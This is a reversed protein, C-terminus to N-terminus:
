YQKLGDLRTIQPVGKSTLNERFQRPIRKEAMLMWNGRISGMWTGDPKLDAHVSSIKGMNLAIKQNYYPFWKLQMPVALQRLNVNNKHSRMLEEAIRDGRPALIHANILKWDDDVAIVLKSPTGSSGLTTGRIWESAMKTFLAGISLPGALKNRASTAKYFLAARFVSRAADTALGDHHRVLGNVYLEGGSTLKAKSTKLESIQKVVFDKVANSVTANAARKKDAAIKADVNFAAGLIGKLHGGVKPVAGLLPNILMSRMMKHVEAVAFYGASRQKAENKSPSALVKDFIDLAGEMHIFAAQSQALVHRAITAVPLKPDTLITVSGTGTTKPLTLGSGRVSVIGSSVGNGTFFHIDDRFSGSKTPSVAMEVEVTQRPDVTMGSSYEYVNLYGPVDGNATAISDLTVPNRGRNTIRVPKPKSTKGVDTVPFELAGPSLRLDAMRSSAEGFGTVPLIAAQTNADTYVYLLDSFEGAASPKFSVQIDHEDGAAITTGQSLGYVMLEAPLLGMLDAVNDIAVSETGRNRIAVTVPSSERGVRTHPFDISPKSLRLQPARPADGSSMGGAEPPGDGTGLAAATWDRLGPASGGRDSPKRATSADTAPPPFSAYRRASASVRGPSRASRSVDAGFSDQERKPQKMCMANAARTGRTDGRYEACISRWGARHTEDNTEHRM